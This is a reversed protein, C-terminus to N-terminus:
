ASHSASGVTNICRAAAHPLYFNAIGIGFTAARSICSLPMGALNVGLRTCYVLWVLGPLSVYFLRRPAVQPPKNM